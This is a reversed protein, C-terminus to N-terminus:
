LYPSQSCQSASNTGQFRYGLGVRSRTGMSQKFIGALCHLRLGYKYVNLSGLFRNRWGIYGPSDACCTPNNYLGALAYAPLTLEKSDIGPSWLLKLFVVETQKIEIWNTKKSQDQRNRSYASNAESSREFKHFFSLKSRKSKEFKHFLCVESRKVRELKHFLSLESESWKSREFKHFLCL